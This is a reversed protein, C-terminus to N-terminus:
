AWLSPRDTNNCDSDFFDNRKLQAQYNKSAKYKPLLDVNNILYTQLESKYLEFDNTAQTRAAEHISDTTSKRSASGVLYEQLYVQSGEFVVKFYALGRKFAEFATVQQCLTLLEAYADSYISLDAKKAVAIQYAKLDQYLDKGLLPRLTTQESGHLYRSFASWVQRGTVLHIIDGYVQANKVFLANQVTFGGSNVWLQFYTYNKEMLALLADATRYAEKGLALRLEQVDAVPAPRSTDASDTYSQQIGLESIQNRIYPLADCVARHALFRKALDIAAKITQEEHTDAFYGANDLRLFEAYQAESILEILQDTATPMQPAITEFNLYKHVAVYQRVQDIDNLLYEM